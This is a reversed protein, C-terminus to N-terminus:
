VNKSFFCIVVPLFPLNALSIAFSGFAVVLPAFLLVCRSEHRKYKSLRLRFHTHQQERPTSFNLGALWRVLWRPSVLSLYSWIKSVQPTPPLLFMAAKEAQNQFSLNQNGCLTVQASKASVAGPTSYGLAPCKNVAKSNAKPMKATRISKSLNTCM